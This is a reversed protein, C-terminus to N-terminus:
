LIKLGTFDVEVQDVSFPFTSTVSGLGYVCDGLGSGSIKSAFISPERDLAEILEELKETSVGLQKMLEQNRKLQKYFEELNNQELANFAFTVASDIECDLQNYYDKALARKDNVYKIVEPTPVKVGSNVLVIPLKLEIRKHSFPDVKYLNIGGYISALLDSGSGLGSQVKRIINLGQNFISTNDVKGKLLLDFCALTAATVSASSGYGKNHPM